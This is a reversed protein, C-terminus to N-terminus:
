LDNKCYRCLIASYRIDEACYPCTKMDSGSNSSLNSNDSILRSEDTAEIVKLDDDSELIALSRDNDLSQNVVTVKVNQTNNSQDSGPDSIKGTFIEIFAWIVWVPFLILLLLLAAIWNRRFTKIAGGVVAIIVVIGIIGLLVEDDL